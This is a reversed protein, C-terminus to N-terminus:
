NAEAKVAPKIKATLKSCFYLMFDDRTWLESTVLAKLMFFTFYLSYDEKGTEIERM